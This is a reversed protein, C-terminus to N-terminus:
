VSSFFLSEELFLELNLYARTKSRNNYQVGGKPNNAEPNTFAHMTQGYTHIQWDVNAKTMETEFDLVQRPSVLPDDHGHLCLVKARIKKNDIDGASLIGHISIVGNVEAGARALELVCMGGFCFGMAATKGSDVQPLRKGAELAALIRRRLAGRDNALPNMLSSNLDINGEEGFIGKGYMDLAMGVYGLEAVYEATETAFQRRGSWDHAILVLPRREDIDEYCLYAELVTDGDKYDLTKRIM